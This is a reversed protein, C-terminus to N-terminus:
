AVRNTAGIKPELIVSVLNNQKQQYAYNKVINSLALQLQCTNYSIEEFFLYDFNTEMHYKVSQLEKIRESREIFSGKNRQENGSKLAVKQALFVKM